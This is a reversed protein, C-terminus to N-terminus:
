FCAVTQTPKHAVTHRHRSITDESKAEKEKTEKGGLENKKEGERM